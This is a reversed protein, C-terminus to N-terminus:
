AGHMMPLMGLPTAIVAAPMSNEGVPVNWIQEDVLSPAKMCCLYGSSAPMGLLAELCLHQIGTNGGLCSFTVAPAPISM